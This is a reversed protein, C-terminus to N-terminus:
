YHSCNTSTGNEPNMFSPFITSDTGVYTNCEDEDWTNM